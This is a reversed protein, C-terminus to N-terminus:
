PAYACRPHGCAPGRVQLLALTVPVVHVMCRAEGPTPGLSQLTWTLGSALSVTAPPGAGCESKPRPQAGLCLQLPGSLTLPLPAPQQPCARARRFGRGPQLVRLTIDGRPRALHHTDKLRRALETLLCAMLHPQEGELPGSRQADSLCSKSQRRIWSTPYVSSSNFDFLSTTESWPGCQSWGPAVASFPRHVSAGSATLPPPAVGVGASSRAPARPM